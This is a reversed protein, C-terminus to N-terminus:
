NYILNIDEDFESDIIKKLENFDNLGYNKEIMQNHLKEILSQNSKLEKIFNNIANLTIKELFSLNLVPTNSENQKFILINRNDHGIAFAKPFIQHSLGNRIFYLLNNKNRVSEPFYKSDIFELFNEKGYKRFDNRSTHHLISFYDLISFLFLAHPIFLFKNKKLESLNKNIVPTYQNIYQNLVKELKNVDM